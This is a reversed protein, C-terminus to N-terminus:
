CGPSTRINLGWNKEDIVLARLLLTEARTYDGKVRYLEALKNLSTAFHQHDSGMNKEVIASSRLLLSEARGYDGKEQYVEALNSLSMAVENSNAGLEKESTALAQQLVVESQAYDGAYFLSAGLNSLINGDAPRLEAAKKYAEVAERYKGQGFLAQGLFSAADIVRAQAKELAILRTQLSESLYKVAEPYNRTYLAALGVNFPDQQKGSWDRIALDLEEPRLGYERSVESLVALRSALTLREREEQRVGERRQDIIQKPSNAENIKSIIAVLAPGNELLARDGREALVVQVHNQADNEFPPVRVRSDWPSIFVLDLPARVIQITVESNVKTQPALKIRARGATDTPSSVSSDGKTSLVVGMVPQNKTNSVHVVLVGDEANSIAISFSITIIVSLLRVLKRVRESDYVGKARNPNM